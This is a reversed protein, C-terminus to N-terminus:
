ARHPVNSISPISCSNAVHLDVSKGVTRDSWGWWCGRNQFPTPKQNCRAMNLPEEWYHKLSEPASAHLAHARAREGMERAGLIGKLSVWGASCLAQESMASSSYLGVPFDGVSEGSTRYDSETLRIVGLCSRRGQTGVLSGKVRCSEGSLRNGAALAPGM